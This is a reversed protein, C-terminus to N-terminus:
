VSMWLAWASTWVFSISRRYLVSMFASYTHFHIKAIKILFM